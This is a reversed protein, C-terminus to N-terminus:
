FASFGFQINLTRGIRYERQTDAAQLFTIPADTVNDASVRLTLRGLRQSLALDVTGRGQELIDPLGLSGVDAIRDGAYNYLVRGTTGGMRLEALGNLLHRSTGSLPRVLSTLVSNQAATLDIESDVFTYNASVLFWDTLRQRVELELGANRASEANRYSTRLQATPEVIREIPQDFRKVFLSASMVEEPGSFWEWRVDINQILSRTLEPNGIVARGGVIDTFEFPALERFEPRNITQSFGARLNQDHRVAYVLNVSPFADTEDIAGRITAVAGDVDTDFLDFTDVVQSFREVRAGGILRLGSSLPLDIMAFVSAVDQSADYFDTNRTEERLEFLPGINAATFIQEPGQAFDFRETTNALPIFRFRRSAFDRERRSFGPGAKLMTPLGRWNTFFVSWSAQFDFADEDLDNFMRLGSQSEDALLFQSGTQEYLTERIDPQDLNSRSVSGRWELRSHSLGPIFHEGQLQASRLNEEQWLLRVNRLNRGADANFGEFTRTERKGKDTSFGQLSLRNNPTLQYTLNLVGALTGRAASADYVYESFPSLAGDEDVRFYNQTETQFENRYSHNLSALVGFAGFRNAYVASWGQNPRGESARPEWVNEFLEGLAELDARSVGLEPSFVGGRIVRRDGPFAAPLDRGGDGIGLWDRDGGPHDLIAKGYTRDNAGFSYALDFVPRSPLKAPVIEVLGGAFEASRDPTYSKVISVNDLLGAPFMDLSVVKREPETSPLTAGNLTTNSYREGLGRVFVYQNDVVSLGTVRQLASAATADANLKMEQGGLNDTIAPARQREILQAAASATDAEIPRGSVTVSETFGGVALSVNVDRSRDGAAVAVTVIQEAYGDLAVKLRHEGAPLTLTWRGDLDTHTVISSGAVEVPVGPLPQANTADTVRGAIRGTAPASQAAVPVAFASLLLLACLPRLIQRTM